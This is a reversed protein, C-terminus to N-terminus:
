EEAGRTAKAAGTEMATRSDESGAEGDQIHEQHLLASRIHHRGNPGLLDLSVVQQRGFRETRVRWSCDIAYTQSYACSDERGADGRSSRWLRGPYTKAM